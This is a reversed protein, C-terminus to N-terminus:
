SADDGEKAPESGTASKRAAQREIYRAEAAEMTSKWLWLYTRHVYEFEFYAWYLSLFAGVVSVFLGVTLAVQAQFVLVNSALVGSFLFLALAAILRSIRYALFSILMRGSKDGEINAHMYGLFYAQKVSQRRHAQVPAPLLKTAIALILRGVLVAALSGLAGLLVIGLISNKLWYELEPSM